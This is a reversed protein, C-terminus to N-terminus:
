QLAECVNYYCLLLSGTWCQLGESDNWKAVENCTTASDNRYVGNSDFLKSKEPCSFNGKSGYQYDTSNVTVENGMLSFPCDLFVMVLINKFM